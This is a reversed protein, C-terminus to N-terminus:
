AEWSWEPKLMNGAPGIRREERGVWKKVRKVLVIKKKAGRSAENTLSSHHGLINVQPTCYGLGLHTTKNTKQQPNQIHLTRGGQTLEGKQYLRYRHAHGAALIFYQM